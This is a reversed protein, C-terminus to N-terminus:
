HRHLPRTSTATRLPSSDCLPRSVHALSHRATCVCARSKPRSTPLSMLKPFQYPYLTCYASGSCPNCHQSQSEPACNNQKIKRKRPQVAHRQENEPKPVGTEAITHRSLPRAGSSGHLPDCLCAIINLRKCHCETSLVRMRATNTVQYSESPIVDTLHTALCDTARSLFFLM